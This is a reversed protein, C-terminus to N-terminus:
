VCFDSWQVASPYREPDSNEDESIDWVNLYTVCLDWLLLLILGQAASYAIASYHGFNLQSIESSVCDSLSAHASTRENPVTTQCIHWSKVKIKGMYGHQAAGAGAKLAKTEEDEDEDGDWPREWTMRVEIQPAVRLLRGLDSSGTTRVHFSM